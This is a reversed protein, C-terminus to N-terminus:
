ETPPEVPPVETAEDLAKLKDALANTRNEIGNLIAQDEASIEGTSNQLQEIKAKLWNIDLVIGDVANAIVLDKAAQREAFESIKSMIYNKNLFLRIEIWCLISLISLFYWM